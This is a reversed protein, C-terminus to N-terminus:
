KDADRHNVQKQIWMKKIQFNDQGLFLNVYARTLGCFQNGAIPKM